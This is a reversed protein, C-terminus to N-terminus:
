TCHTKLSAWGESVQKPSRVSLHVPYKWLGEGSDTVCKHASKLNYSVGYGGAWYHLIQNWQWWGRKKQFGDLVCVGWSLLGLTCSVYATLQASWPRSSVRWWVKVLWSPSTKRFPLLCLWNVVSYSSEGIAAFVVLHPQLRRRLRGVCWPYFNQTDMQVFGLFSRPSTKELHEEPEKSWDPKLVRLCGRVTVEALKKKETAGTIGIDTNISFIVDKWPESGSTILVIEGRLINLYLCFLVNM